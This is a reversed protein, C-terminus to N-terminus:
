SRERKDQEVKRMATKVAKEVDRPSLNSGHFHQTFTYSDGSPGDGRGGVAALAREVMTAASHDHAEEMKALESAMGDSAQEMARVMRNPMVFGDSDFRRFETGHEGIMTPAGGDGPFYLEKGAEGVGYLQGEAVPGGEKRWHPIDPIHSAVDGFPNLFNMGDIVANIGHILDNLMDIAFNVARKFAGKIGEEISDWIEQGRDKVETLADIISLWGEWIKDKLWILADVVWTVLDIVWSLIAVVVKLAPVLVFTIAQATWGLAKVLFVIIDITAKHAILKLLEIFLEILPPLLPILAEFIKVYETGFVDILEIVVPILQEYVPWLQEFAKALGDILIDAIRLIVPALKEFYKGMAEFIQQMFPAQRELIGGVLELIDGLPGLATNILTTIPGLLALIVQVLYTGLVNLIQAVVPLLPTLAVLIEGVAQALLTWLPRTMELANGIADLVTVIYPALTTIIDELIPVLQTGIASGLEIVVPGLAHIVERLSSFFQTLAAQGEKSSTFGEILDLVGQLPSYSMGGAARSIDLLIRGISQFVELLQGGMVMAQELWQNAKSDEGGESIENLWNAFQNGWKTIITDTMHDFGTATSNVLNAFGTMIPTAVGRIADWFHSTNALLTEISSAGLDGAFFDFVQGVTEGALKGVQTFGKKFIPLVRRLFAQFKNTFPAFFAEQVSKRIDKYVDRFKRLVKLFHQASPALDKQADYFEQWSGSLAASIGEGVGKMAVSLAAFSLLLVDIAAPVAVLFGALSSLAAGLQFAPAIASAIGVGLAIYLLTRPRLGKGGTDIIKNLLNFDHTFRRVKKGNRDLTHGMRDTRKRAKDTNHVYKDTTENLKGMGDTVGRQRPVYAAMAADLKAVSTAAKDARKDLLLLQRNLTRIERALEEASKSAVIAERSLEDELEVEVTAKQDGDPATM